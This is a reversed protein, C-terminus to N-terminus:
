FVIFPVHKTDYSFQSVGGDVARLEKEIRINRLPRGRGQNVFGCICFETLFPEDELLSSDDLSRPIRLVM